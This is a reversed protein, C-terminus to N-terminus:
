ESNRRRNRGDRKQRTEGQTLHAYMRSFVGVLAKKEYEHISDYIWSLLYKSELVFLM